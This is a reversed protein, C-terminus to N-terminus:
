VGARAALWARVDLRMAPAIEHGADYGRTEVDAARARLRAAYDALLNAHRAPVAERDPDPSAEAPKETTESRAVMRARTAATVMEFPNPPDLPLPEPNLRPRLLADIQRRIAPSPEAAFAITSLALAACLLIPRLATPM